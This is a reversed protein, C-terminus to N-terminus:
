DTKKVWDPLRVPYAATNGPHKPGVIERIQFLGNGVEDYYAWIMDAAYTIDISAPSMKVLYCFTKGNISYKTISSVRVEMEKRVPKETILLKVTRSNHGSGGITDPQIPTEQVPIGNIIKEPTNFAKAKDFNALGPILWGMERFARKEMEPQVQANLYTEPAQLAIFFSILFYSKIKVLNKRLREKKDESRKSLM